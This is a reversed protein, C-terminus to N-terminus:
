YKYAGKSLKKMKAAGLLADNNSLETRVVFELNAIAYFMNMLPYYMEWKPVKNWLATFLKADRAGKRKERFLVGDSVGTAGTESFIEYLLRTASPSMGDVQFFDPRRIGSQIMPFENQKASIFSQTNDAFIKVAKQMSRPLKSFNHAILEARREHKSEFFGFDETLGLFEHVVRYLYVIFGDDFSEYKKRLKEIEKKSLTISPESFSRASLSGTSDGSVVTQQPQFNHVPQGYSGYGSYAADSGYVNVSGVCAVFMYFFLTLKKMLNGGRFFLM